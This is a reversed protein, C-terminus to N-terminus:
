FRRKWLRRARRRAALALAALFLGAFLPPTGCAGGGGGMSCGSAYFCTAARPACTGSSTCQLSPCQIGQTCPEGDARTAICTATADCVAGTACKGDDTCPAGAAPLAACKGALCRGVVCEFDNSCTGGEAVLPVVFQDCGPIGMFHNTAGLADCTSSRITALCSALRDGDYRARGAQEADQVAGLQNQFADASKSECSPEDTGASDNSMLQAPTCCSYAKPCVTEAIQQPASAISIGTPEPNVRGCGSGGVMVWGTMVTLVTLTHVGLPTALGEM